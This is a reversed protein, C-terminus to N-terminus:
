YYSSCDDRKGGSVELRAKLKSAFTKILKHGFSKSSDQFFEPSMGKGDDSVELHLRENQEFLKVTLLGSERDIFAHKLANTILENTILGIPIVSEVDLHIPTIKKVLSIKDSRINLTSFLGAILQDFYKQMDIGILNGDKYLNEHLLAMSQVRSRGASLADLAAGDDIYRSQLRLLSSIVQLNNKVRHHIERLLLEKEQLATSIVDNKEALVAEAKKKIQFNRYYLYGVLVASIFLACLIIFALRSRKNKESRLFAAAEEEQRRKEEQRDFAYQMELRTIYKTNEDNRMSDHLSKSIEHSALARKFDGIAKYGGYLCDCAKQQQNLLEGSQAIQLGRECDYIGRQYKKQDLYLSGRSVLADSLGIPAELAELDLVAKNLYSMSEEPKQLGKLAIGINLDSMALSRQTAGGERKLKKAEVQIQYATDFIEEEMYISGKNMLVTGALGKEDLDMLLRFAKDYHHTASSHDSIEKYQNALNNHLVCLSRDIEIKEEGQLESYYGPTELLSLAKLFYEIAGKSNGQKKLMTAMQGFFDSRIYPKEDLIELDIARDYYWQASDFSTRAIFYQMHDLLVKSEDEFLSERRAMALASDLFVKTFPAFDHEYNAESQLEVIRERTSDMAAIRQFVSDIISQEDYTQSHGESMGAAIWLAMFLVIHQISNCM